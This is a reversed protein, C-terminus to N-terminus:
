RRGRTSTTARTASSRRSARRARRRTSARSRSARCRSCASRITTACTPRSPSRFRALDDLARLDDPHVGAADFASAITRCTTTPMRSRGACARSSCRALEDRSAREIPELEGPRPAKAPMASRGDTRTLSPEDVVHGQHPLEQRPVARRDRRRQNRVEIDYVGTRGAPQARPADGHARRRRAGAGPVRDRLGARGHQLNYSNCAFAFASDALTFIFGGHCIAHGNVMDARVTM